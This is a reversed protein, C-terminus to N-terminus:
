APLDTGQKVKAWMRLEGQWGWVGANWPVPSAPPASILKEDILTQLAFERVVIDGPIVARLGREQTVRKRERLCPLVVENHIRRGIEDGKALLPKLELERFIPLNLRLRGGDTQVAPPDLARLADIRKRLEKKPFGAKVCLEDLSMPAQCLICMVKRMHGDFINHSNGSPSLRTEEMYGWRALGGQSDKSLNHYFSQKLAPYIKGNNLEFGIHDWRAGDPHLSPLLEENRYEPFFRVRDLVCIDAILGGVVVLSMQSWDYKEALACGKFIQEVEGLTQRLIHAETEGHRQGIEEIIAIDDKSFVGTKTTWTDNDMRGVLGNSALKALATQVEQKGMGTERVIQDLTKPAARTAYLVGQAVPDETLACDFLVTGWTLFKLFGEQRISKNITDSEQNNGPM